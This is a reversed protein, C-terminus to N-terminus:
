PIFDFNERLFILKEAMEATLRNRKDTIINGATSHVQEAPVSTAPITLYMLAIERLEKCDTYKEWFEIVNEEEDVIDSSLFSNLHVIAQSTKESPNSKKKHRFQSLFSFKGSFLFCFFYSTSAFPIKYDQVIGFQVYIWLRLILCNLVQILSPLITPM